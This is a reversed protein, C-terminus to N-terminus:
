LQGAQFIFDHTMGHICGSPTNNSDLSESSFGPGDFSFGPGEKELLCVSVPAIQYLLLHTDLHDGRERQPRCFCVTGSFNGVSVRDRRLRASRNERDSLLVVPAADGHNRYRATKAPWCFLRWEGCSLLNATALRKFVTSM